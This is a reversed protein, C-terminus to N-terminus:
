VHGGKSFLSVLKQLSIALDNDETTLEALQKHIDEELSAIERDLENISDVVADIDIPEEEEHSDVYRPINLNFGNEKVEEFSALHAKKEVDTRDTYLKMVADVNEASLRNKKRDKEFEKSADIFLIDRALTGRNKKLVVICTPISTNYFLNEPLGIVAHIIGKECLIRRIEGEKGGRFLIGHPLVIAMTGTGKLHYFGHLLFAYDAKSKPPLNGNFDSFRPDTKFGDAASWSQSYPPNMVVMDFMNDESVPWDKDLTDGNRLTYNEPAVGHLVMNMRALNYTTTMLEQGYHKVYEPHRSFHRANLLLSASGMAPDYVSLGKVDEQGLIAVRTLIESVSKPTYFEGAKKGTESAFQGISYEYADGIADGDYDLMNAENVKLLLDVITKNQKTETTGLKVSYLDLDAFLGAFLPSSGEVEKFGDELHSRMFSESAIERVLAEVTHKPSIIYRLKQFLIDRFTRSNEEDEWVEEYVKQMEALTAGASDDVSVLGYATRLLNDSLFKYFVLPLTVNKYENADMMSRLIDACGWIVAELKKM